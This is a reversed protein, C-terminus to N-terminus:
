APAQVVDGPKPSFRVGNIVALAFDQRVAPALAPVGFAVDIGHVEVTYTGAVPAALHVRQVNNSANPFATLDGDIPTGRPPIVRLYLRNQLGKGPSDTWTLTVRLPHAPDALRFSFTRVDGTAVALSEDDSYSQQGTPPAALTRGLDLLGFGRINDPAAGAATPLSAANVIVAKMLAASPNAIGRRTLLYQRLRACVESTITAAMSTGLAVVDPKIRGDGSDNVPGQGSSTASAGVTLCNKATGPATVTSAAPGNNGAAVVVLMDRQNWVFEDVDHSFITYKGLNNNSAWGNDHIRAGDAYARGLATAVPGVETLRRAVSHQTRVDPEIEAALVGDLRAIDAVRDATTRVLARRPASSVVRGFDRLRHITLSPDLERDLEALVSIPLEVSAPEGTV